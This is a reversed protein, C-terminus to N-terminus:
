SEFDLSLGLKHGGTAINRAEILSSFSVKVGSRLNQQYGLGVQGNHNVKARLIAGDNLVYKCAASLCPNGAQFDYNSMLGIDTKENTKHHVSVTCSSLDKLCSHVTFDEGCYGLAADNATLKATATNYGIQYGTYWGKYKFVTAGRITPGTMQLDADADMAVYERCYSTKVKATKNGTSPIWTSNLEMKLGQVAKPEYVLEGNLESSTNWSESFTIGQDPFKLKTKMSGSTRSKDLDHSGNTEFEVGSDTKTKLSLKVKPYDFGKSFVDRATKGLDEFFAPINAM